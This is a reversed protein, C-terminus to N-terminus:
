QNRLVRVLGVVHLGGDGCDDILSAEGLDLLVECLVQHDAKGSQISFHNADDSVLGPDQGTREVDIGRDLARAENPEAVGEVDRQDREDIYGAEQRSRGLLVVADDPM